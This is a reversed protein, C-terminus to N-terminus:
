DSIVACTDYKVRNMSIQTKFNKMNAESYLYRQCFTEYDPMNAVTVLLVFDIDGTVQYCERVESATRIRKIFGDNLDLRDREMEVNVIM